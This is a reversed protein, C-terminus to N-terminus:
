WRCAISICLYKLAVIVLIYMYQSDVRCEYAATKPSLGFQQVCLHKHRLINM